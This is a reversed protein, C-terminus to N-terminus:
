GLPLGIASWGSGITLCAVAAFAIYAGALIGPLSIKAVSMKGKKEGLNSASKAIENPALFSM